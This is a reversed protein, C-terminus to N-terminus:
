SSSVSSTRSHCRNKETYLDDHENKVLNFRDKVNTSVKQIHKIIRQIPLIRDNVTM